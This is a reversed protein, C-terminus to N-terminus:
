PTTTKPTTESPTNTDTPATPSTTYTQQVNGQQVSDYQSQTIKGANLLAKANTKNVKSMDVAPSSTTVPTTANAM